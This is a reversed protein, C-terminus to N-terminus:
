QTLDELVSGGVNYRVLREAETEKLAKIEELRKNVVAAMKENGVASGRWLRETTDLMMYNLFKRDINLIDQVSDIAAGNPVYYVHVTDGTNNAPEIHIKTDDDIFYNAPIGEADRYLGVQGSSMEKM